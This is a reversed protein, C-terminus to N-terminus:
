RLCTVREANEAVWTAPDLTTVSSEAYHQNRILDYLCAQSKRILTASRSNAVAMLGYPEGQWFAKGLVELDNVHQRLYSRHTPDLFCLTLDVGQPHEPVTLAAFLAESDAFAHLAVEVGAKQSWLFVALQSFFLCDRNEALYGLRVRQMSLDSLPTVTAQLTPPAVRKDNVTVALIESFIETSRPTIMPMSGQSVPVVAATTPVAVVAVLSATPAAPGAKAIALPNPIVSAATMAQNGASAPTATEGTVVAVPLRTVILSQIWLGLGLLAVAILALGFSTLTGAFQGSDETQQPLTEPIRANERILRKLYDQRKGAFRAFIGLWFPASDIIWLLPDSRQVMVIADWSVAGVQLLTEVVTAIIPFLLGFLAGYITFKNAESDWFKGM